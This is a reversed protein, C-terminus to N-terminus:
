GVGRGGGGGGAGLRKMVAVDQRRSGREDVSRECDSFNRGSTAPSPVKGEPFPHCRSRSATSFHGVAKKSNPTRAMSRPLTCPTPHLAYPKADRLHPTRAMSRPLCPTEDCPHGSLCPQPSVSSARPMSSRSSLRAHRASAASYCCGQHWVRAHRASAACPTAELLLQWHLCPMGSLNREGGKRETPSLCASCLALSAPPVPQSQSM